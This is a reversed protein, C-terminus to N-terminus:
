ALKQWWVGDSALSGGSSTHSENDM